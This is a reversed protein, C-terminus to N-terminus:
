NGLVVARLRPYIALISIEPLREARIGPGWLLFVSRYDPRGPWLGHTGIEYPKGYRTELPKPSFLFRDAPEYAAAPEPKTGSTEPLFRRWEAPPIRRGIGNAPDHSLRELEAAEERNAATVWFPTVTGVPPHVTKEVSVFGHDSVLAFVTDRPLASLIRGILEDTYELIANSAVSFPETEHEEADLDVFHVALFDPHKQEILFLTALMRTRDDLWQQPFSPFRSTIEDILGPTAKKAVAALDMAGGQRKEFYEPLNWTIPAGVTVPWTISASTLNEARLADWLTKVKILSYDWRQNQQIGHVAPPVGALITTHEPWTITPIEGVVGDAWACERMLRRLNPIKLKLRDCDRLYRQDLGDVSVLVLRQRASLASAVLLVSLVIRRKL